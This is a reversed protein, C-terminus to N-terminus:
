RRHPFPTFDKYNLDQTPRTQIADEIKKLVDPTLKTNAIELTEIINELQEPKNGGTLAVSVDKNKLVWAM